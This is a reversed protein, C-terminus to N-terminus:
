GPALALVPRRTEAPPQPAPVMEIHYTTAGTRQAVGPISTSQVPFSQSAAAAVIWDTLVGGGEGGLAAVLITLPRVAAGNGRITGQGREGQTGALPTLQGFRSSGDSATTIKGALWGIITQRVRSLTRDRWTPNSVVDVRYFSPCLVAAHAVEGC